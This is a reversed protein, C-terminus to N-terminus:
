DDRDDCDDQQRVPCYVSGAAHCESGCDDCSSARYGDAVIRGATWESGLSRAKLLANVAKPLGNGGYVLFDIAADIVATEADTRIDSARKAAQLGSLYGSRQSQDHIDLHNTKYQWEAETIMDKLTTM